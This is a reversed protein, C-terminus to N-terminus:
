VLSVPLGRQMLQGEVGKRCDPEEGKGLASLNEWQEQSVNRM